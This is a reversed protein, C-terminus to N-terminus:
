ARNRRPVSLVRYVVRTKRLNASLKCLIKIQLSGDNHSMGSM